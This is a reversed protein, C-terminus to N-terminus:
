CSPGPCTEGDRRRETKGDTLPFLLVSGAQRALPRQESGSAQHNGLPFCPWSITILKLSSFTWHYSIVGCPKVCRRWVRVRTNGSLRPFAFVERSPRIEIGEEGVGSGAGKKQAPPLSLSSAPLPRIAPLEELLLSCEAPLM